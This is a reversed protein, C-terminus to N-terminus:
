GAAAAGDDPRRWRRLAFAVGILPLVILLGIPVITVAVWIAVDALTQLAGITTRLAASVTDGPRWGEDTVAVAAETPRVTVEVTALSVLDDLVQKRGELREIEGRVNRIREFVVLVEEASNSRERVEALLAVLETELARLNRLQATVDSYEETVDETGLQQVPVRVALARLRELTNSLEATPIRLTIRGHLEDDRGTRQLDAGAVFGGSRQALSTIEDIAAGPDDVELTLNARQIVKRGLPAGVSIPEAEDGTGAEVDGDEAGGASGDAAEQEGEGIAPAGEVTGSDTTAAGDDSAGCGTLLVFSALVAVTVITRRNM